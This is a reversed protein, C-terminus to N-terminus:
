HNKKSTKNKNERKRSNLEAKQANSLMEDAKIVISDTKLSTKHQYMLKRVADANKFKEFKQHHKKIQSLIIILKYIENFKMIKHDNFNVKKKTIIRTQM